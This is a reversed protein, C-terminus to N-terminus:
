AMESLTTSLTTHAAPNSVTQGILTLSLALAAFAALSRNALTSLSTMKTFERNTQHRPRHHGASACPMAPPTGFRSFPPNGRPQFFIQVVDSKGAALFQSFKGITQRPHERFLPCTGDQAPRSPSDPAIAAKNKCNEALHGIQVNM